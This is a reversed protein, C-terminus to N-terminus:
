HLGRRFVDNFLGSLPSKYTESAQPRPTLAQRGGRLSGSLGLPTYKRLIPYKTGDGKWFSTKKGLYLLIKWIKGRSIDVNKRLLYDYKKGFIFFSVGGVRFGSESKHRIISYISFGLGLYVIYM